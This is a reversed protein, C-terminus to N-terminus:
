KDGAAIMADALEFLIDAMGAFQRAREDPPMDGLGQAGSMAGVLAQGAYYQRLSMGLGPKRHWDNRYEDWEGDTPAAPGGDDRESM